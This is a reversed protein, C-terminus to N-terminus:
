GIARWAERWIQPLRLWADRSRPGIRAQVSPHVCRFLQLGRGRLAPEGFQWALNGALIVGRLDRFLPLLARLEDAGSRKELGTLATTGNWWPITNWIAVKRRPIGAQHMFRQIAEATSGGNDRSVFGSGRPPLTKPGPKELLLLLKADVGGDLPDFDPVYGRRQANLARVYNALPQVNPEDLLAQRRAAVDPDM